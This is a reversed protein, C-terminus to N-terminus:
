AALQASAVSSELSRESDKTLRRCRSVCAFIRLAPMRIDRQRGIDKCVKTTALLTSAQKAHGTKTM